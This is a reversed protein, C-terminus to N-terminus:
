TGKRGYTGCLTFLCEMLREADKSRYGARWMRGGTVWANPIKNPCSSMLTKRPYCKAGSLKLSPAYCPFTYGQRWLDVASSMTSMIRGGEKKCTIRRLFKTMCYYGPIYRANIKRGQKGFSTLSSSTIRAESSFGIHRAHPINDM